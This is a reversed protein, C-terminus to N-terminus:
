VPWITGAEHILDIRYIGDMKWGSNALWREFREREPTECEIVLKGQESAKYAKIVWSQRDFRWKKMQDFASRFAEESLGPIAGIALYRAM